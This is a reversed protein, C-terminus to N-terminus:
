TVADRSYRRFSGGGWLCRVFTCVEPFRQRPIKSLFAIWCFGCIIRCLRGACPFPLGLGWLGQSRPLCPLKGLSSFTPAVITKKTQLDTGDQPRFRVRNSLELALGFWSDFPQSPFMFNAVIIASINGKTVNLYSERWHRSNTKRLKYTFLSFLRLFDLCVIPGGKEPGSLFHM